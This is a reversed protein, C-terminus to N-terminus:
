AGGGSGAGTQARNFVSISGFMKSLKNTKVPGAALPAVPPPTTATFPAQPTPSPASPSAASPRSAPAPPSPSPKSALMAAPQSPALGSASVARPPQEASPKRVLDSTDTSADRLKPRAPAAEAPNGAEKRGRSVSQAQGGNHVVSPMPTRWDRATASSSPAGVSGFSSLPTNVRSAASEFTSSPNGRTSSSGSPSFDNVPGAAGPRQGRRDALRDRRSSASSWHGQTRGRAEDDGDQGSGWSATGISGHSSFPSEYKGRPNRGGQMQAPASYTDAKAGIATNREDVRRKFAELDSNGENVLTKLRGFVGGGRKGPGAKPTDHALTPIASTSQTGLARSSPVPRPRSSSGSRTSSLERALEQSAAALDDLVHDHVRAEDVTPLKGSRPSAVPSAAGSGSGVGGEREAQRAARKEKRAGRKRRKSKGAKEKEASTKGGDGGEEKDKQSAEGVDESVDDLPPIDAPQPSVADGAKSDPGSAPSTTASSPQESPSAPGSPAMVTSGASMHSDAHADQLTPRRAALLSIGAAPTARPSAPATGSPSLSPPQQPPPPPSPTSWPLPRAIGNPSAHQSSAVRNPLMAPSPFTPSPLSEGDESLATPSSIYSPRVPTSSTFSMDPVEPVTPLDARLDAPMDDFVSTHAKVTSPAFQSLLSAGPPGGGAITVPMTTVPSFEFASYSDSSTIQPREGPGVQGEGMMTVLRSAWRGFEGASVRRRQKGDVIELVDCFVNNALYHAVEDSMGEFRNQMFDIPDDVYEAFDPDDLSPDAWPNRHYLLNLFVLGLSWVDAQRPDYSPRLNNRCEARLSSWITLM